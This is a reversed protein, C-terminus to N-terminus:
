IHTVSVSLVLNPLELDSAEIKTKPKDHRSCMVLPGQKYSFSNGADFCCWNLCDDYEEVDHKSQVTRRRGRQGAVYCVCDNLDGGSVLEYEYSALVEM